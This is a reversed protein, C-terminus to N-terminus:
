GITASVVRGDSIDAVVRQPSFMATLPKDSTTFIGGAGEVVARAGVIKMGVLDDLRYRGRSEEVRRRLEAHGDDHASADTLPDHPHM